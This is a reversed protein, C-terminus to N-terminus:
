TYSYSGSSYMQQFYTGRWKGSQEGGVNEITGPAEPDQVEGVRNAQKENM